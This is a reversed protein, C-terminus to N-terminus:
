RRTAPRSTSRRARPSAHRRGLAVAARPTARDPRVRVARAGVGARRISALREEHRDGLPILRDRVPQGPPRAARARNGRAGRRDAARASGTGLGAGDCGDAPVADRDRGSGCGRLRPNGRAHPQRLAAALQRQLERLAGADDEIAARSGFVIEAMRLCDAAAFDSSPEGAWVRDTLRIAALARLLHRVDLPVDNPELINRGPTDLNDTLQTLKLLAELDAM